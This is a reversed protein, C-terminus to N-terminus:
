EEDELNQRGTKDRDLSGSRYAMREQSAARAPHEGRPHDPKGARPDAPHPDDYEGAQIDPHHIEDLYRDIHRYLHEM